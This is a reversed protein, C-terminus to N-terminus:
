TKRPNPIVQGISKGDPKRKEELINRLYDDDKDKKEKKYKYHLQTYELFEDIPMDILSEYSFGWDILQFLAERINHINHDNFVFFSRDWRFLALFIQKM